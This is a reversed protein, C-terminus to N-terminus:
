RTFCGRVEGFLGDLQLLLLLLLDLSNNGQLLLLLMLLKIWLGMHSEDRQEIRIILYSKAM